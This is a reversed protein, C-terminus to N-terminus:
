MRSRPDQHGKTDQTALKEGMRLVGRLKNEKEHLEHYIEKKERKAM